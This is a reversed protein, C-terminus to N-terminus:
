RDQEKRQGPIRNALRGMPEVAGQLTEVSGNLNELAALVKEMLASLGAIGADLREMTEPMKALHRQVEVLTPM